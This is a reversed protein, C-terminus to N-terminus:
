LSRLYIVLDASEADTLSRPPTGHDSAVLEELTEISGDHLFPSRYVTEYLAPIQFLGGTGVNINRNDTRMEGSHCALCGADGEFLARGREVAATDEQPAARAPLTDMWEGFSATEDDTPMAGAMRGVFTGAMVAGVSEVQGDWHFPLTSLIGGTLTQTRRPGVDFRWVHGDDAGEPHCSACSVGTGAGEHFLAHGIHEVRGGSLQITGYENGLLDGIVLQAPDRYQAVFRSTGPIRALATAARPRHLPDSTVHCLGGRGFSTSLGDVRRLGNRQVFSPSDSAQGPESAAAVIVQDVGVERIQLVDVGLSTTDLAMPSGVVGGSSIPTVLTRVVGLDCSGGYYQGGPTGLVGLQTSESSQHLVVVSGDDSISRRMRWAVTPAHERGASPTTTPLTIVEGDFVDDRVVLIEASRFTSVWVVNGGQAVVDRLDPRLRVRRVVEGSTTMRVLQGEACAVVLEGADNVDIGRPAACVAHRATIEGAEPDVTAVEGAERLVVHIGGDLDEVARGPVDNEGLVIRSREQLSDLNVVHISARAPDSAIAWHGEGTVM